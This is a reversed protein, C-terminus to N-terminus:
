LSPGLSERFEEDSLTHGAECSKIAWLVQAGMFGGPVPARPDDLMKNLKPLARPDALTALSNIIEATLIDYDGPLLAALRPVVDKDGIEGLRRASERRSQRDAVPDEVILLHQLAEESIAGPSASAEKPQGQELGQLGDSCGLGALWLAGVPLLMLAFDLLVKGERKRMM